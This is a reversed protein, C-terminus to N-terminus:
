LISTDVAYISKAVITTNAKNSSHVNSPEFGRSMLVEDDEEEDDEMTAAVKASKNKKVCYITVAIIIGVVAVCILAIFTIFIDGYLFTSEIVVTQEYFEERRVETQIPTTAPPTTPAPTPSYTDPPPLLSPLSNARLIFLFIM